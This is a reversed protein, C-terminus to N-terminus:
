EDGGSESRVGKEVGDPEVDIVEGTLAARQTAALAAKLGELQVFLEDTDLQEFSGAGGVELQIPATPKPYRRDALWACAQLRISESGASTALQVVSAVIAQWDVQWDIQDALLNGKKPRGNPNPVDGKKWRSSM